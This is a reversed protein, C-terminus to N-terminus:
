RCGHYSGPHQPCSQTIVHPSPEAATIQSARAGAPLIPHGTGQAHLPGERPSNASGPPDLATHTVTAMTHGQRNPTSCYAAAPRWTSTGRGSQGPQPRAIASHDPYARQTRTPPRAHRTQTRRARQPHHRTDCASSGDNASARRTSATSTIPAANSRAAAPTPSRGTAAPSPHRVRGHPVPPPPKGAPRPQQGRPQPCQRDLDARRQGPLDTADLIGDHRRQTRDPPPDLPPQAPSRRAAPLQCRQEGAPPQKPGGHAREPCPKRPRTPHRGDRVRGSWGSPPAM